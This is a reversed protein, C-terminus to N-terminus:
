HYAKVTISRNDNNHLLIGSEHKVGIIIPMDPEMCSKQSGFSRTWRPQVIFSQLRLSSLTPTCARADPQIAISLIQWCSKHM